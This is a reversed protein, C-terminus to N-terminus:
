PRNARHKRGSISVINGGKTRLPVLNPLLCYAFNTSHSLLRLWAFAAYIELGALHPAKQKPHRRRSLHWASSQAALDPREVLTSVKDVRVSSDGWGTSGAGALDNLASRLGARRRLHAWLPASDLAPAPGKEGSAPCLWRAGQRLDVRLM